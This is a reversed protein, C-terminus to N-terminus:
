SNDESFGQDKNYRNELTLEIDLIKDKFDQDVRKVEM